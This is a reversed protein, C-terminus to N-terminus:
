KATSGLAPSVGERKNQVPVSAGPVLDYADSEKLPDPSMEVEIQSQPEAPLGSSWPWLRRM